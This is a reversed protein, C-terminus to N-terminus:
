ADGEPLAKQAGRRKIWMMKIDLDGEGLDQGQKPEQFVGTPKLFNEAVSKIHGLERETAKDIDIDLISLLKGIAKPRNAVAIARVLEDDISPAGQRLRTEAQALAPQKCRWGKVTNYSVNIAKAARSVVLTQSFAVLYMKQLPSLPSLDLTTGDDNQFVLPNDQSNEPPPQVAPLSDEPTPLQDIMSM